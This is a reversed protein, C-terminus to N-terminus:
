SRLEPFINTPDWKVEGRKVAMRMGLPPKVRMLWEAMGGNKWMVGGLTTAFEKLAMDTRTKLAAIRADRPQMFVLADM